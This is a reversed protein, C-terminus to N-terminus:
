DGFVAGGAPSLMRAFKNNRFFKGINKGLYWDNESSEAQAEYAGAEEEMRQFIDLEQGATSLQVAQEDLGKASAADSYASEIDKAGIAKKYERAGSTKLGGTVLDVDELETAKRGLSKTLKNFQNNLRDFKLTAEARAQGLHASGMDRVGQALGRLDPAEKERSRGQKYKGYLSAVGTMITAGAALAALFPMYEKLGTDPNITGAGGMRKLMSKEQENVHVLETDGFRGKSALHDYMSKM